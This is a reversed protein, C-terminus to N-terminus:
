QLYFFFFAVALQGSIDRSMMKKGPWFPGSLRKKVQFIVKNLNGRSFADRQVKEQIEAEVSNYKIHSLRDKFLRYYARAHDKVM